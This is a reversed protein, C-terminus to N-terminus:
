AVSRSSFLPSRRATEADREARAKATDSSYANFDRRFLAKRACVTCTTQKSRRWPSLQMRGREGCDCIWNVCYGRSKGGTMVTDVVTRTGIRVQVPAIKPYRPFHILDGRRESHLPTTENDEWHRRRTARAIVAPAYAVQGPGYTLLRAYGHPGLWVPDDVAREHSVAYATAQARKM